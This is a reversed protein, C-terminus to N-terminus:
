NLGGGQLTFSKTTAGVNTFLSWYQWYATNTDGVGNEFYERYLIKKRHNTVEIEGPVGDNNPDAMTFQAGRDQGHGCDGDRCVGIWASAGPDLTFFGIQNFAM